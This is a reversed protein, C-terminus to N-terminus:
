FPVGRGCGERSSVENPFRARRIGTAGRVGGKPGRASQNRRGRISSRARGRRCSQGASKWRRVPNLVASSRAAQRCVQQDACRDFMSHTTRLSGASLLRTIASNRIALGIRASDAGRGSTRDADHVPIPLDGASKEISPRDSFRCFGNRFTGRVPSTVTVTSIPCGITRQAGNAAM